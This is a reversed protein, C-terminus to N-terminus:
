QLILKKSIISKGDTIKIFYVGKPQDAINIYTRSGNLLESRIAKGNADFVTYTAEGINKPIYFLSFEGVTPNPGVIVANTFFNQIGVYQSSKFKLADIILASGTDAYTFPWSSSNITIVATDPAQSLSFPIEFRTYSSQATLWTSYMGCAVGAKRFEINVQGTDSGNPSYKYWGILTDTQNSFSFGSTFKMLTNDWNGNNIGTFFWGPQNGATTVMKLAYQGEYKDTSKHIPSSLGSNVFDLASKCDWNALSEFSSMTSWNEFGGDPIPLSTNFAFDDFIVFSGPQIGRKTMANSCTALLIVTDPTSSVTLKFSLRQWVTPNNNGSIKFMDMGIVSGSNKYMIGILGTDGPLIGLKAYCIFSDPKMTYPVGGVGSFPDGGPNHTDFMYGVLTDTPNSITELKIAYNGGHAPTYQSINAPLGRPIAEMNSNIWGDPGIATHTSWNEFNGNQLQAFGAGSLVIGLLLTFLKKMKFFKLTKM